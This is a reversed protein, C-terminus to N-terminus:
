CQNQANGLSKISNEVTKTLFFLFIQEFSLKTGGL